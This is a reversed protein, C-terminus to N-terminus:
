ELFARFILFVGFGIITLSIGIQITRLQTPTLLEKLKRASFAKLTDTGILAALMGVFFEIVQTQNWNSPLVVTTAFALWFFVTFPNFLNLLLGRLFYGWYGWRRWNNDVGYQEHGDLRDLVKEGIKTSDLRNTPLSRRSTYLMQTGIGSLIIGGILSAYFNFGSLRTFAAVREVSQYVIGIFALDSLWIGAAFSIGARFGRELSASIIAFLLPGVLLSLSLGFLVGKWLLPM